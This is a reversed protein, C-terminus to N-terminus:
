KIQTKIEELEKIAKECESIINKFNEIQSSLAKIQEDLVEDSIVEENTTTTVKYTVKGKKVIEYNM